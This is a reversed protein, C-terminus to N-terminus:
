EPFGYLFIANTGAIVYQVRPGLGFRRAVPDDTQLLRILEEDVLTAPREDPPTGEFDARFLLQRSGPAIVQRPYTVEGSPTSLTVDHASLEHIIGERMKGSGLEIRIRDGLQPQQFTPTPEPRLGRLRALTKEQDAQPWFLLTAFFIALLIFAGTILRFAM